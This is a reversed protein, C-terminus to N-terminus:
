EKRKRFLLYSIICGVLLGALIYYEFHVEELPYNLTLHDIKTFQSFYIKLLERRILISIIISTCVILITLLKKTLSNLRAIKWTQVIFIPILAVILSFYISAKFQGSFSTITFYGGEVKPLVLDYFPGYFYVGSLFLILSFLSTLIISKTSHKM